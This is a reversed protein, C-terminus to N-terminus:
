SRDGLKLALRTRAGKECPRMKGQRGGSVHCMQIGCCSRLPWAIHTGKVKEEEEKSRWM